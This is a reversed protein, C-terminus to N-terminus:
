HIHKDFSELKYVYLRHMAIYTFEVEIFFFHKFISHIAKDTKLTVKRIQTIRYVSGGKIYSGM